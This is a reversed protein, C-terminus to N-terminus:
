RQGSALAAAVADFLRHMDLPRQLRQVHMSAPARAPDFPVEDDEIVIAPGAIVLWVHGFKWWPAAAPTGAAPNSSM